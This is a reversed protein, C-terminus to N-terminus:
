YQDRVIDLNWWSLSIILSNIILRSTRAFTIKLSLSIHSFFNNYTIFHTTTLILFSSLYSLNNKPFPYVKEHNKNKIKIYTNFHQVFSLHTELFLGRFILKRNELTRKVNIVWAERSLWSVYLFDARLFDLQLSIAPLGRSYWDNGAPTYSSLPAHQRFTDAIICKCRCSHVAVFACM